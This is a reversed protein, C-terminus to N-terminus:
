LRWVVMARPRSSVQLKAFIRNIYNKVTKEAIFLTRAIEANSLGASVCDMVEAERSSLQGRITEGRRPIRPEARPTPARAASHTVTTHRSVTLPSTRGLASLLRDATLRDYTLYAAAGQQRALTALRPDSEQALAIVKTHEALRALAALRDCPPAGVGVLLVDPRIKSSATLADTGSRAEVVLSAPFAEDIVSRLGRVLIPNKEAIVFRMM